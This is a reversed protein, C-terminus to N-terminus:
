KVKQGRQCEQRIACALLEPDVSISETQSIAANVNKEELLVDQDSHEGVRVCAARREMLTPAAMVM